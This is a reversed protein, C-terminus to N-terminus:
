RFSKENNFVEMQTELEKKVNLGDMFGVKYYKNSWFESLKMVNNFMVEDIIEQLEFENQNGGSTAIQKIKLETDNILDRYEKSIKIIKHSIEDSRIDYLEELISCNFLNEM